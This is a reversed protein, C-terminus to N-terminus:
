NADDNIEEIYEIMELIVESQIDPEYDVSVELEDDKAGIIVAELDNAGVSEAFGVISDVPVNFIRTKM